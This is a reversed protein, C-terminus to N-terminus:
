PRNEKKLVDKAREILTDVGKQYDDQTQELSITPKIGKHNIVHGKPTLYESVTYIIASEKDLAMSDQILGKGFTKSGILEVGQYDELASALIEAASATQGDVLIAYPKDVRYTPKKTRMETEFDKSKVKVAVKDEGVFVGLLDVASDVLGGPNSRLDLVFSTMGAKELKKYTKEFQKASVRTFSDIRIYGIKSKPLMSGSVITMEIKKRELPVDFEKGDRKITVNVKSGVEGRIMGVAKDIGLNKVSSGDIKTIVDNKKLGAESASTGKSTGGIKLGNDDSTQDLTVGIGGFSGEKQTEFEKYDKESVYRTYPDGMSAVLGEMAGDILQADSVKGAYLHQKKLKNEVQLVKMTLDRDNQLVETENFKYGLYFANGLLLTALVSGSLWKGAGEWGKGTKYM